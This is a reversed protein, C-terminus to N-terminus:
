QPPTKQSSPTSKDGGIEDLLQLINNSLLKAAKVEDDDEETEKKFIPEGPKTPEKKPEKANERTMSKHFSRERRQKLKEQMAENQALLNEKVKDDNERLVKDTKQKLEEVQKAQNDVENKINIEFNMIKSKKEKYSEFDRAKFPSEPTNSRMGTPSVVIGKPKVNIPPIPSSTLSNQKSKDEAPKKQQASEQNAKRIMAQAMGSIKEKFYKRLPDSRM